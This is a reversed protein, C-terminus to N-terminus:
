VADHVEARWRREIESRSAASVSAPVVVEIVTAAKARLAQEIAVGLEARASVRVFRAGFASAAQGLFPAPPTLFLREFSAADAISRKVPLQEFIRGGGNDLVVVVLPAHVGRLLALSGVDHQASVDGLLVVVAHQDPTALRAGVAGAILGDIGAAGRQHQVNVGAALALSGYRGMDRVPTSNGLLLRTGPPLKAALELCVRPECPEGPEALWRQVTASLQRAKSDLEGAYARARPLERPAHEALECLFPEPDAEIMAAASGQPDPAGHAAVVVHRQARLALAPFAGDVPPPGIQLLLDPSRDGDFAGAALLSAFSHVGPGSIASSTVDALVAVGREGVRRCALSLADVRETRSRAGGFPLPGLVLAPRTSEALAAAVYAVARPSPRRDAPFLEPARGVNSTLAPGNPELPKRFRANLHVAGAKPGLAGRVARFAIAALSDLALSDPAGLDLFVRAHRGFLNSQDITQSAGAHSLEVPRDATLLLLPVEAHDAEIVAPFFHAGASGSTAIVLAPFGTERAVGLAVFGASREDVCVSLADGFLALAALALPTSRSGPCVIARQVGASALGAILDHAWRQTLEAANM